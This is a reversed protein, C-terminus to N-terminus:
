IIFIIDWRRLNNEMQKLVMSKQQQSYKNIDRGQNSIAKILLIDADLVEVFNGEMDIKFKYVLPAMETVSGDKIETVFLDRM